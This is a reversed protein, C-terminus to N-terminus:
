RHAVAQDLTCLGGSSQLLFFPCCGGPRAAGAGALAPLGGDPAARLRQRVRHLVARVRPDGPVGRVGADGVCRPAGRGPDPRGTARPSPEVYAHLFGIAVAEVGARRFTAAAERVARRRAPDARRRSRQHGNPRRRAPSPPARAAGPTGHAHRVARLPERLRDRRHRSLRRHDAAGTPAGKREILANTALTTGHVFLGISAPAVGAGALVMAIGDLVVREPRRRPPSSRPPICPETPHKLCSTPSRAASTPPLAPGRATGGAPSM